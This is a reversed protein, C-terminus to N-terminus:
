GGNQILSNCMREFSQYTNEATYQNLIHNRANKGMEAAKSPDRIMELLAYCLSRMDGKKFLLGTEGSRILESPGTKCDSSICPLGLAMAEMLANPMGEFDSTMLFLDKEVLIGEIRDVRGNLRCNDAIGLMEIKRKLNDKEIGDGYVDLELYPYRRLLKKLSKLALEYNKQKDLRGVMVIKSIKDTYFAKKNEVFRDNIPNPVVYIKNKYKYFFDAQEKTQIMIADSFLAVMDEMFNTYLNGGRDWPSVRVTYVLKGKEGNLALLTCFMVGDMFPVVIDPNYQRIEKRLDTIRKVRRILNEKRDPLYKLKVKKSLEYDEDSKLWSVVSVDCGKEAMYSSFTAVFREAGGGALTRTIFMYKLTNKEM